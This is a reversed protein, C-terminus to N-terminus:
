AKRVKEGTLPSSGTVENINLFNLTNERNRAFAGGMYNIFAQALGNTTGNTYM